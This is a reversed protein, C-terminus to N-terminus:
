PIQVCPQIATDLSEIESLSQYLLIGTNVYITSHNYYWIAKRKKEIPADEKWGGLKLYNAISVIADTENFPDIKGDNDGDVGFRM